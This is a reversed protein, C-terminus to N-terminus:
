RNYAAPLGVAPPFGATAPPPPPPAVVAGPPCCPQAPRKHHCCASCGLNWLTLGLVLGTALTRVFM